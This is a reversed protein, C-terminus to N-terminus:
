LRNRKVKNITPSSFLKPRTKLVFNISTSLKSQSNTLSFQLILVKRQVTRYFIRIKSVPRDKGSKKRVTKSVSGLNIKCKFNSIFYNEWENFKPGQGGLTM